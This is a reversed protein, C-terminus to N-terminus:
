RQRACFVDWEKGIRGNRETEQEARKRAKSKERRLHIEQRKGKQLCSSPKKNRQACDSMNQLLKNSM